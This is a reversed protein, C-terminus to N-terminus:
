LKNKRMNMRTSTHGVPYSAKLEGHLMQREENINANRGVLEM